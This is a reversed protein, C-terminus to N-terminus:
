IHQSSAGTRTFMHCMGYLFVSVGHTVSQVDAYWWICTWSVCRCVVLIVTCMINPDFICSNWVFQFSDATIMVTLLIVEPVHWTKPSGWIMDNSYIHYVMLGTFVLWRSFLGGVIVLWPLVRPPLVTNGPAAKTTASVRCRCVYTYMNNFPPGAWWQWFSIYM